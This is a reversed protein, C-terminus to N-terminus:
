RKEEVVTSIGLPTVTKRAGLYRVSIKEMEKLGAIDENSLLKSKIAEANIAKIAKIGGSEICIITEAAAKECLGYADSM